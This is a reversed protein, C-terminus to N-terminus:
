QFPQELEKQFEKVSLGVCGGYRIYNVEYIQLYTKYGKLRVYKGDVTGLFSYWQGTLRKEKIEKFFEQRTMNFVGLM